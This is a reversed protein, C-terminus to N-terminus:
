DRRARLVWDRESSRAELVLGARTAVARMGAESYFIFHTPDEKYWWQAFAEDSAPPPSTRIVVLGGPELLRAMAIFSDYPERFHEAVELCLLADYRRGLLSVDPAFFPDWAWADYGRARLLTALVPVPGSGYDIVSMGPALGAGKATDIFSFLWAAYGPDDPDNRHLLYRAKEAEADFRGDLEREISDCSSCRVFAESKM